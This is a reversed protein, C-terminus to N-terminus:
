GAPKDGPAKAPTGCGGQGAVPPADDPPAGCAERGERDWWQRWARVAAAHKEVDETFVPGFNKDTLRHLGALAMFRVGEDQADLLGILEGALTKDGSRVAQAITAAQVRPNDARLRVVM